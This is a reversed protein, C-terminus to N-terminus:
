LNPYAISQLNVRIITNVNNLFNLDAPSDELGSIEPQKMSFWGALAGLFKTESFLWPKAVGLTGCPSIFITFSSMIVPHSRESRFNWQFHLVAQDEIYLNGKSQLDILHDQPAITKLALSFSWFVFCTIDVKDIVPSNLVFLPTRTRRKWKLLRSLRPLKAICLLHTQHYLILPRCLNGLYSHRVQAPNCLGQFKYDVFSHSM